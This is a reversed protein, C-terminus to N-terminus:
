WATFNLRNIFSQVCRDIRDINVVPKHAVCKHQLRRQPAFGETLTEIYHGRSRSHQPNSPIKKFYCNFFKISFVPM